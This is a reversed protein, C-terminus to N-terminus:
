GPQKPCTELPVRYATFGPAHAIVPFQMAQLIAQENYGRQHYSDFSLIQDVRRECLLRQYDAPGNFNRMAMSEPFLESDLRGGARVVRYMGLKNDGSLLVRYMAGPVFAPSHLYADLTALNPHHGYMVAKQQAGVNLPFQFAVNFALPVILAAPALWGWGVRKLLVFFMPVVVILIRTGVTSFFNVIQTSPGADTYSPSALVIWLSPIALVCSCAFWRIVAWRDKTFMLYLLVVVLAIPAIVVPHNAMGVGALIAAIARRGDRWAAIGLLLFMAGWVFSQQGFLLAEILASNLLVGAAWWGHRLEPFAVFTAAACGVVGLVTWLTVTWDGFLPWAIAATTWNVFGYPYAYAEGHGLQPFRWPLRGHHWLRRAIWWVHVHNNISDSSLVIRHRLYLVLLVAWAIALAAAVVTGAYRRHPTEETLSDAQRM